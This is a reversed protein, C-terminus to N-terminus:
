KVILDLLNLKEVTPTEITSLLDALNRSFIACSRNGTWGNKTDQQAQLYCYRKDKLLVVVKFIYFTPYNPGYEKYEKKEETLGLVSKVDSLAFPQTTKRFGWGRHLAKVDNNNLASHIVM